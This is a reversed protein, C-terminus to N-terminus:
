KGSNLLAIIERDQFTTIGSKLNNFFYKRTDNELAEYFDKSTPYASINPVTCTAIIFDFEDVKDQENTNISKIWNMNIEGFSSIISPEPPICIRNHINGLGDDNLRSQFSLLLKEKKEADFKPNFLIGIVCWIKKDGKVFKRDKCGEAESLYEVQNSIGRFGTINRNKFPILYATGLESNLEAQKSFVMTLIKNSERGYRIPTIIHIAENMNLRKSRWNKRLNKNEGQHPDWFLSGIIVVGGKM